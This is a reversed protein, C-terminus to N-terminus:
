RQGSTSSAAVAACFPHNDRILEPLPTDSVDFCPPTSRGWFNGTGNSSLETPLTYPGSVGIARTTSGVVDNLFVRAGFRAASGQQLMLGFAASQVVNGTVSGTEIMAGALTIGPEVGAGYVRNNRIVGGVTGNGGFIAARMPTTSKFPGILINEEAVTGRARLDHTETILAPCIGVPAADIAPMNCDANTQCLRDTETGDTAVCLAPRSVVQAAMAGALRIGIGAERITNGVVRTRLANSGVEIGAHSKGVSSGPLSVRNSEVVNDDDGPYEGNEYNPFQYLRGGVVVNYLPQFYQAVLLIGDGALLRFPGDPVFRMVGAAAAAGSLVNDNIRNRDANRALSIGVGSTWTIVNHNIRADDVRLLTIGADRAYIENNHIRHGYEGVNKSNMAVIGFDFRAGEMGIVCNRIDVARDGTVAIAVAPVSAVYTDPSLGAGASAPLIRHGACNLTTFAQLEIPEVLTLDETLVCAGGQARAGAPCGPAGTPSLRAIGSAAMAIMSMCLCLNLRRM